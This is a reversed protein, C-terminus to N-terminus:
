TWCFIRWSTIFPSVSFKHGAAPEPPSEAAEHAFDVGLGVQDVNHSTVDLPVGVPLLHSAASKDLDGSRWVELSLKLKM